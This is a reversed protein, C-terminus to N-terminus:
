QKLSITLKASDTKTTIMIAIEAVRGAGENASNIELFNALIPFPVTQAQHIDIKIMAGTIHDKIVSGAAMVM